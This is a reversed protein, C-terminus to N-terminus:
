QLLRATLNFQQKTQPFVAALDIFPLPLHRPANKAFDIGFHHRHEHLVPGQYLSGPMVGLATQHFRGFQDPM